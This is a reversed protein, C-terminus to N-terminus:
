TLRVTACNRRSENGAADTAVACLTFTGRLGKPARWRTTVTGKAAPVTAAHVVRTGRSVTLKLTAAGANDTVSARLPVTAGARGKWALARVVPDAIDVVEPTLPGATGLLGCWDTVVGDDEFYKGFFLRPADRIIRVVFSGSRFDERGNFRGMLTRGDGVTCAILDGGEVYHGRFFISPGAEDCEFPLGGFNTGILARGEEERIQRWNLTGLPEQSPMLQSPWSGTWVDAPLASAASSAGAPLIAAILVAAVAIAIRTRAAPQPPEPSSAAGVSSTKWPTESRPVACFTRQSSTPTSTRPSGTTAQENSSSRFSDPTM